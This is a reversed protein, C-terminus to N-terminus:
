PKKSKYEDTMKKFVPNVKNSVVIRATGSKNGANQKMEKLSTNLKSLKQTHRMFENSSTRNSYQYIIITEDNIKDIKSIKIGKPIKNNLRKSWDNAKYTIIEKKTSNQCPKDSFSVSGNPQTCKHIGAHASSIFIYLLLLLYKM